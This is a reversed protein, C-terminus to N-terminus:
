QITFFLYRLKTRLHDPSTQFFSILMKEKWFGYKEFELVNDILPFLLDGPMTQLFFMIIFHLYNLTFSNIDLFLHVKSSLLLPTM